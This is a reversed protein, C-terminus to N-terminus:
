SREQFLFWARAFFIGNFVFFKRSVEEKSRRKMRLGLYLPDILNKENDTGLDITIPVTAWPRISDM